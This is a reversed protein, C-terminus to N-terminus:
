LNGVLNLYMSANGDAILLPGITDAQGLTGEFSTNAVVWEGTVNTGRTEIIAYFVDDDETQDPEQRQVDPEDQDGEEDVDGDRPLGM